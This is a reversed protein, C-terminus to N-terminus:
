LFGASSLAEAHLAKNAIAMVQAASPNLLSGTVVLIFPKPSYM